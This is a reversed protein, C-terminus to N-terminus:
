GVTYKDLNSSLWAAATPEVIQLSLGVVRARAAPCSCAALVKRPLVDALVQWDFGANASDSVLSLPRAGRPGGGGPLFETPLHTSVPFSRSGSLIM